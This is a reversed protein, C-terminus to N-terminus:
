KKEIAGAIPISDHRTGDTTETPLDRFIGTPITSGRGLMRRTGFRYFSSCRIAITLSPPVLSLVPFMACLPHLPTNWMSVRKSLSDERLITQYIAMVDSRVPLKYRYSEYRNLRPFSLPMHRQKEREM